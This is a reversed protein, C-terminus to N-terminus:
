KCFAVVANASRVEMVYSQLKRQTITDLQDLDLDIEDDDDNVFDAERIIQMAGPLLWEPLLNIAESLAEQEEFSLPEPDEMVPAQTPYTSHPQPSSSRSEAEKKVKKKKPKFTEYSPEVLADFPATISIDDVDSTTATKSSKKVLKHLGVIQDQVERIARILLNYEPRTVIADPDDPVAQAIAAMTSRNTALVHELKMRKSENSAEEEAKRKLEKEKKLRRKAEKAAEKEKLRLEHREAKTLTKNKKAATFEKDIMGFKKTFSAMLNRAHIHVANTPLSNFLIANEFTLRILRAFEAPSDIENNDMKSKITGLDMPNKIVDFYTPIGLAVPDVPSTFIKHIDSDFLEQLIERCRGMLRIMKADPDDEELRSPLKPMRTSQRQLGSMSPVFPEPPKMAPVPGSNAPTAKETLGGRFVKGSKKSSGPHQTVPVADPLPSPYIRYLQMIGQGGKGQPILTGLIDFKGMSNTGKGYVNYSGASNKVYKLVIQKDTYSQTKTGKRMKFSGRYSASDIPFTSHALTVPSIANDNRELNKIRRDDTQMLGSAKMQELMVEADEVANDAPIGFHYKATIGNDFDRNTLAWNGTCTQSGDSEIKLTGRSLAAFKEPPSIPPPIINDKPYDVDDFTLLTTAQVSVAEDEPSASVSSDGGTSSLKAHATKKTSKVKPAQFNRSFTITSEKLTGTISYKGYINSGKGEVNYYGDSNMIFKITVDREQMKTREGLNNITYFFGTYRGSLPFVTSDGSCKHEYEFRECKDPENLIKDLGEMTWIGAIRHVATNDLSLEASTNRVLQGRLCLGDTALKTPPPKTENEGMADSHNRKKDKPKEEAAVVPPVTSVSVYTKRVSISFTPDDGEGLLKNKTATGHLEFVGFENTGRGYLTFVENNDAKPTFKLMVGNEQVARNKLKIKMKSTKIQNQVNFSGNFEGDKPLQKLDEDLPINRILEFRLPTADQGNGFKWNGRIIHRRLNDRDSYALVGTLVLDGAVVPTEDVKGSSKKTELNGIKPTKEGANDDEDNKNNSKQNTEDEWETEDVETMAENTDDGDNLEGSNDVIKDAKDITNLKSAVSSGNVGEKEKRGPKVNGRGAGNSSNNDDGHGMIVDKGGNLSVGDDEKGRANRNGGAAAGEEDIAEEMIVDKEPTISKAKPSGSSTKFSSLEPVYKAGSSYQQSSLTSISVSSSSSYSSSTGSNRPLNNKQIPKWQNIHIKSNPAHLM